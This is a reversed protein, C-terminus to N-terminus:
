RFMVKSRHREPSKYKRYISQDDFFVINLYNCIWTTELLFYDSFVTFDIVKYPTHETICYVYTVRQFHYLSWHYYIAPQNNFAFPFAAVGSPFHTVEDFM